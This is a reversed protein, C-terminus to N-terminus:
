LLHRGARPLSEASVSRPIGTQHRRNRGDRQYERFRGQHGEVLVAGPGLAHHRPQTRRGQPRMSGGAAPRDAGRELEARYEIDPSAAPDLLRAQDRQCRLLSPRPWVHRGAYRRRARRGIACIWHAPNSDSPPERGKASMRGPTHPRPEQLARVKWFICKHPELGARAARGAGVLRPFHHEMSGLFISDDVLKDLPM